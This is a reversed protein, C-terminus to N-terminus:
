DENDCLDCLFRLVMAGVQIVEQIIADSNQEKTKIEEWLEDFEEKIVAYGEHGSNFKPFKIIAREYELAILEIADETKM